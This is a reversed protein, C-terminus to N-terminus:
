LPVVIIRDKNQLTRRSKRARNGRKCATLITQILIQIVIQIAIWFIYSNVSSMWNNLVVIRLVNNNMIWDNNCRLGGSIQNLISGSRTNVRSLIEWDLDCDLDSDLYDQKMYIPYLHIYLYM